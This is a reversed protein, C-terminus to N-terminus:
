PSSLAELHRYLSMEYSNMSGISFIEDLVGNSTVKSITMLPELSHAAIEPTLTFHVANGVFDGVMFGVFNGLSNGM